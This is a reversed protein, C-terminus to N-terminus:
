ATSIPRKDKTTTFVSAKSVSYHVEKYKINNSAVVHEATFLQATKHTTETTTLM